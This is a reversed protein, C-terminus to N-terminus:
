LRELLPSDAQEGNLKKCIKMLTGDFFQLVFELLAQESKHVERANERLHYCADQSPLSWMYEVMQTKKRYIYVSQDYDPTPCSERAFFYNRLVNPLLRERKTLVVIFFDDEFHEENDTICQVINHIYDQSNQITSGLEVPNTSDPEKTMLNVALKGVTDRKVEDM